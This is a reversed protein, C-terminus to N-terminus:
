GTDWVLPAAVRGLIRFGMGVSMRQIVSTGALVLVASWSGQEGSGAAFRMGRKTAGVNRNSRRM